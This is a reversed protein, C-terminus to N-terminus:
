PLNDAVDMTNSFHLIQAQPTPSQGLHCDLILLPFM